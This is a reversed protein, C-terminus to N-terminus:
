ACTVSFVASLRPKCHVALSQLGDRKVMAVNALAFGPVDERRDHTLRSACLTMSQPAVAVSKLQRWHWDRSAEPSGTETEGGQHAHPGRKRAQELGLQQARAAGHSTGDRASVYLVQGKDYAPTVM